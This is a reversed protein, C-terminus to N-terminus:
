LLRRISHAWFCFISRFISVISLLARRELNTQVMEIPSSMIAWPIPADFFFFRLLVGSFFNNLFELDLGLSFNFDLIIGHNWKGIGHNRETFIIVSDGIM